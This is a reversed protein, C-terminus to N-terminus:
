RGASKAGLLEELKETLKEGRLNKGIIKGQPDILLNQPISRIGYQKAVANDWYQLDSLQTWTLGDKHIAAMWKEKDDPRDLSVGLVTFNKDKYANFAKVVNPNEKRCPGCWSAWFDILVYKGRFSSLTVPQGLTDNQTFDMATQGIATKRAIDMQEKFSVASPLERLSASLVNYMPEAKDADIIYGAYQKFAYLAVPSSPNDQIFTKFVNEDQEKQVKEIVTVVKEMAANDKAKSQKSYEEYLGNLRESYPKLRETLNVYDVHSASGTISNVKLEDKAVLEMKTPEMFVQISERTAKEEGPQLSYHVVLNALTPEAIMGEFKFEGKEPKVSDYRREDGNYYGLYVMEVPKQLKLEGKLKFEKNANQAFSAIPIALLFLLKKM